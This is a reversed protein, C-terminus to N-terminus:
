RMCGAAVSVRNNIIQIRAAKKGANEQIRGFRFYQDGWGLGQHLEHVVHMLLNQKESNFPLVNPGAIQVLVSIRRQAICFTLTVTYLTTVSAHKDSHPANLRNCSKANATIGALLTSSTTPDLSSMITSITACSGLSAAKVQLDFQWAEFTQWRPVISSITANHVLQKQLLPGGKIQLHM